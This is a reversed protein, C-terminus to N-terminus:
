FICVSFVYRACQNAHTIARQHATANPKVCEVLCIACKEYACTLKKWERVINKTHESSCFNDTNKQLSSIDFFFSSVDTPITQRRTIRKADGKISLSYLKRAKKADYGRTTTITTTTKTMTDPTTANLMMKHRAFRAVHLIHLYYTYM